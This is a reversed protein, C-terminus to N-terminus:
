LKRKLLLVTDQALEKVMMPKSSQFYTDITTSLKMLKPMLELLIASLSILILSLELIMVLQHKPTFGEFEHVFHFPTIPDDSGQSELGEYNISSSLLRPPTGTTLRGIPFGYNQLTLALGISPPETKESDRM